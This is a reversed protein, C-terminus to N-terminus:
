HNGSVDIIAEFSCAGYNYHRCVKVSKCDNSVYIQYSSDWMRHAINLGNEGWFNKGGKNYAVGIISEPYGSEFFVLEFAEGLYTVVGESYWGNVANEDNLFSSVAEKNSLEETEGKNTLRLSTVGKLFRNDFGLFEPKNKNANNFKFYRGCDFLVKCKKEGLIKTIKKKVIQARNENSNCQVGNSSSSAGDVNLNLNENAYKNNDVVPNSSKRNCAVGVGTAIVGLGLACGGIIAGLQGNTLASAGSSCLVTAVLASILLKKSSRM